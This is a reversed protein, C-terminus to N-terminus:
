ITYLRRLLGLLWQRFKIKLIAWFSIGQGRILLFLIKLEKQDDREVHM